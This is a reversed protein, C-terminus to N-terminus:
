KFNCGSMNAMAKDTKLKKRDITAMKLDLIFLPTM